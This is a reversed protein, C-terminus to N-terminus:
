TPIKAIMESAMWALIRAKEKTNLSNSGYIAIFLEYQKDQVMKEPSKWKWGMLSCQGFMMCHAYVLWENKMMSFESPCSKALEEENSVGNMGALTGNFPLQFGGEGQIKKTSKSKKKSM